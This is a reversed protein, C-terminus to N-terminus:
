VILSIFLIYKSSMSMHPRGKVVVEHQRMLPELFDAMAQEDMGEALVGDNWRSQWTVVGNRKKMKGDDEDAGGEFDYKAFGAVRGTEDKVVLVTTGEDELAAKRFHDMIFANIVPTDPFVKDLIPSNFSTRWVEIIGQLDESTAHQLTLTSM